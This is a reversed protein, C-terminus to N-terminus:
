SLAVMDLYDYCLTAVYLCAETSRFADIRGMSGWGKAVTYGSDVGARTAESLKAAIARSVPSAAFPSLLSRRKRYM